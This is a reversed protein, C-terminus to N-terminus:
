CYEHLLTRGYSSARRFEEKSDAVTTTTPDQMVSLMYDLPELGRSRADEIEALRQSGGSVM